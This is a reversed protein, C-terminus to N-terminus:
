APDVEFRVLWKLKTRDGGLYDSITKALENVHNLPVVYDFINAMIRLTEATWEGDVVLIALMEPHKGKWNIASFMKDKSYLSAHRSSSKRVEIFAVPREEDPVVFDARHDYIVGTLSAYEDERKFPVDESLLASEVISELMVRGVLDRVIGELTSELRKLIEGERIGNPDVRESLLASLRKSAPGSISLDSVSGVQKKLAAKSFIGSLHQLIPLTHPNSKIFDSPWSRYGSSGTKVEQLYDAGAGRISNYVGNTIGSEVDFPLAKRREWESVAIKATPNEISANLGALLIIAKRDSDIQDEQVNTLGSSAEALELYEKICFRIEADALQYLTKM